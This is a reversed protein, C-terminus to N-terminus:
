SHTLAADNVFWFRKSKIKAIKDHAFVDIAKFACKTYKDITSHNQHLFEQRTTTHIHNFRKQATAILITTNIYAVRLM